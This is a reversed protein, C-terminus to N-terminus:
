PRRGISQSFPNGKFIMQTKSLSKLTQPNLHDTGIKISMNIEYLVLSEQIMNLFTTM